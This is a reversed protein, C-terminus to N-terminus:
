YGLFEGPEFMIEFDEEDVFDPPFLKNYCESSKDSYHAYPNSTNLQKLCLWCFYTGCRFCIIKNCGDTKEISANCHPCPKSNTGLWEESLVEEVLCKVTRKGYHSELEAKRSADGELYDKCIQGKMKSNFRCPAVGHYARKCFPCFVFNCAPCTGIRECIDVLLACQCTQRPCYAIDSMTELTRSLLLSDYRDFVDKSVIQRVLTSDAQTTCKDHPCNLTHVNGEAIRLEFYSKMCDKCFYHCCKRFTIFQSGQKDTFCVNCLHWSECFQQATQFDNYDKLMNKLVKGDAIDLFARRDRPGNGGAILPKIFSVCCNHELNAKSECQIDEQSYKSDKSDSLLCNKNSPEVDLPLANLIDLKLNYKSLETIDLCDKIQLFILAEEKLFQAWQFLIVEGRNENWLVDLHKCLKSLQDYTLWSCSLFYAPPSSSPYSDPYEFHLNIPPLYNVEFAEYDCVSSVAHSDNKSCINNKKLKVFFPNPKQVHASFRGCTREVVIDKEDYISQLVLIEENQSEINDM